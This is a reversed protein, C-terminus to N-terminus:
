SAVAFSGITEECAGIGFGLAIEIDRAELSKMDSGDICRKWSHKGFSKVGATGTGYLRVWNGREIHGLATM